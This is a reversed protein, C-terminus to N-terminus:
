SREGVENATRASLWRAIILTDALEDLPQGDARDRILDRLEPFIAKGGGDRRARDLMREVEAMRM